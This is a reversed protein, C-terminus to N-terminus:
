ASFVTFVLLLNALQTLNKNSVHTYVQTTRIDAHGLLKQIHRIDAGAELLHTAFSHRLTHPTTNKKIGAKKATKKVIEQITRKNYRGGRESILLHKSRNDEYEMLTKKLEPHIFVIRDKGGKSNKIHITEREPDIDGWKLDRVESLRLGGYYLLKLVLKHKKNKTTSILAKVEAKNLVVPLKRTKKMLPLDERLLKKLVKENYMKLAFYSGRVTSRSKGLHSKLFERESLGSELYRKIFYGYTRCSQRSYGRLRMEDNLEELSEDVGM